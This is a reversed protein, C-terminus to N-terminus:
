WNGARRIPTPDTDNRQTTALTRESEITDNHVAIVFLKILTILANRPLTEAILDDRIGALFEGAGRDQLLYRAAEKAAPGLAGSASDMSKFDEALFTIAEEIHKKRLVSRYYREAAINFETADARLPSDIGLNDLIGHTIKGAASHQQPEELRRVLSDMTDELGLLEILDAADSRILKALALRYQRNYIRLYGKYRRSYRVGWTREIIRRLFINGTDSRVFFTPIGIASGFFIQRRESEILPDDPIHGHTFAGQLVYKFALATVLTQLNV